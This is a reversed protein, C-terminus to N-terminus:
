ARKTLAILKLMNGDKLVTSRGNNSTHAKNILVSLSFSISTVPKGTLAAVREVLDKKTQFDKTGELFLIDYTSGRRYPSATPESMISGREKKLRLDTSAKGRNGKLIGDLEPCVARIAKSTRGGLIDKCLGLIRAVETITKADLSAAIIQGKTLDISM